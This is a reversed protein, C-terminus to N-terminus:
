KRLAATWNLVVTPRPPAANPGDLITGILFRQGDRTVDHEIQPESGRALTRTKFLAKPAGHEFTEGSTERYVEGM